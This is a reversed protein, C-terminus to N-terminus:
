SDLLPKRIWRKEKEKKRSSDTELGFRKEINEPSLKRFTSYSIRQGYAEHAERTTAWEGNVAIEETKAEPEKKFEQPKIELQKEELKELKSQVVKPKKNELAEIRKLLLEIQEVTAFKQDVPLEEQDVGLFSELIKTLGQSVKKIRNNIMWADLEQYLEKSIYASIKPNEDFWEKTPM